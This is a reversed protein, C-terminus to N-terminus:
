ARETRSRSRPRSAQRLLAAGCYFLGDAVEEFAEAAFDRQDAAITLAGYQQRGGRVREGIVLLVALEDDGLQGVVDNLQAILARRETIARGAPQAGTRGACHGRAERAARKTPRRM